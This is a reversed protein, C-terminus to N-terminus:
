NNITKTRLKDRLLEAVELFSSVDGAARHIELETELRRVEDPMRSVWEDHYQIVEPEITLLTNGEVGKAIAETHKGVFAAWESNTPM